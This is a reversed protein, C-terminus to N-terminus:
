LCNHKWHDALEAPADNIRSTIANKGLEGTNHIGDFTRNCNLGRHCLAIRCDLWFAAHLVPNSDIDAIYDVVFGANIAVTDINSRPQFVKGRWAADAQRALRVLLDITSQRQAVTVQAKLRQLVDRLRNLNKGDFDFRIGSKIRFGCLLLDTVTACGVSHTEGVALDSAAGRQYLCRVPHVMKFEVPFSRHDRM